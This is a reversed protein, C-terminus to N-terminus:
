TNRLKRNLFRIMEITHYTSKGINGKLEKLDPVNDKDLYFFEGGKNKDPFANFYFQELKTSEVEYKEGALSLAILAECHQWWTKRKDSVENTLPNVESYFGQSLNKEPYIPKSLTTNLIAIGLNKYKAKEEATLFDWNKTRLFLSALQFNHGPSVKFCPNESSPHSCVNWADDFKINVWGLNENWGNEYAIRVNEKLFPEYKSRNAADALWLNEMYATIPYVLAQLSKSGSIKGKQIDYNGYFGGNVTDHFRSIFSDHFQHIQSLVKDNPANRYLESLGCLGYAQQWIDLSSSSDATNSSIDFYSNFYTGLSDQATLKNIQFASASQAKKLYSTDINSAYALGYIMRSLAVNYIKQSVIQGNNDIESYFTGLSAQYANDDFFKILLKIDNKHKIPNTVTQNETCSFYLCAMIFILTFIKKM